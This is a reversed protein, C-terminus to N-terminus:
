EIVENIRNIPGKVPINLFLGGIKNPSDDLIVVVDHKNDINYRADDVVVKGASGAGIVLTRITKPSAHRKMYMRYLRFIIREGSLLAMLMISSVAWSFLESVGFLLYKDPVILIALLGIISALFSILSVKVADIISFNQSLINYIRFIIFLIVHTLALAGSYIFTGILQPHSFGSFSTVLGSFRFTFVGFLFALIVDATGYILKIWFARKM